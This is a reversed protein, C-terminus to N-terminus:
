ATQRQRSGTLVRTTRPMCKQMLFLIALCIFVALAPVLFFALCGWGPGSPLLQYVIPTSLNQLILVEHAAFIFFSSGALFPLVRTKGAKLLSATGCFSAAIGSVLFVFKITKKWFASDTCYQIAVLATLSILAVIFYLLEGKSLTEVINKKNIRFWSGTIFFLMGEPVLRNVTLHVVCLLLIGYLRTWKVFIYILPTVIVYFLLDRIFWLPGNIPYAQSGIPFSGTVSWFLRIRGAQNFEQALSVSGGTANSYLWYALFAIVNWLIYPILLTRGRKALKGKWIDWDWEQELQSFFLFGAIFFFCPVALRCIGEQFLICLFRLPGEAQVFVTKSYHLMVVAVAMPFRLADISKSQLTLWDTQM